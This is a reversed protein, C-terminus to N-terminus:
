VANNLVEQPSMTKLSKLVKGDHRKIVYYGNVYEYYTDIRMNPKSPHTGSRYAEVTDIADQETTCFKSWNSESVAEAYEDLEEPSIGYFYSCNQQVWFLDTLADKIEEVDYNNIADKLEQLEESILDIALNLKGKDGFKHGATELWNHVDRISKKM